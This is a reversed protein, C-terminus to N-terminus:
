KANMHIHKQSSKTKEWKPIIVSIISHVNFTKSRVVNFKQTPVEKAEVDQCMDHVIRCRKSGTQKPRAYKSLIIRSDVGKVVRAM